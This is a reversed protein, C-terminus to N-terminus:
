RRIDAYQQPVVVVREGTAREWDAIVARYPALEGPLLGVALTLAAPRSACAVLCCLALTLVLRM